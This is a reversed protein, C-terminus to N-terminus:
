DVKIKARRAVEKWKPVERRILDRFEEPTSSLPELGGAAYREKLAASRLLKQM